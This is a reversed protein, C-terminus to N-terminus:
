LGPMSDFGCGFGAFRTLERVDNRANLARTLTLRSRAHLGVVWDNERMAQETERWMRELFQREQRAQRRDQGWQDVQFALLVGLTVVAFEIAIGTWDRNRLAARIRKLRPQTTATSQATRAM